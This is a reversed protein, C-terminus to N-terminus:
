SRSSALVGSSDIMAILFNILAGLTAVVIFGQKNVVEILLDLYGGLGLLEHLWSRPCLQLM